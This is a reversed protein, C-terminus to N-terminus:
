QKGVKDKDFYKTLFTFDIGIRSFNEIISIGEHAMLAGMGIKTVMGDTEFFVDIFAVFFLGLIMGAKKVLGDFNISSNIKKATMAALIGTVIDFLIFYILIHFMNGAVAHIDYGYLLLELM